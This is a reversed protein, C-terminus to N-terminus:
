GQTVLLSIIQRAIALALIFQRDLARPSLISEANELNKQLLNM